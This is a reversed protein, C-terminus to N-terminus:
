SATRVSSDLVRDALRDQVSANLRLAWYCAVLFLGGDLCLVTAYAAAPSGLLRRSLDVVAGAGLGGGAFAIAQAAGWLGMYLGERGPGGAASLEMMAGVAAVAFTGNAMGLVVTAGSVSESRGTLAILALVAVMLASGITGVVMWRQAFQAGPRRRLLAAAVVGLMGLLVGGNQMGALRASAAPTFGFVLGVFPEVLLEQASFAFMSALLFWTFRRARADGWLQRCATGFSPPAVRMRVGVAPPEIIPREVSRVALWALLFAAGSVIVFVQLLRLSSFPQLFHGALGASLGFGAIMMIWVLAAALPRRQPAVRKSILTLNATGAAGVGVGIAIYALIALVIGAAPNSRMWIVALAAAVGGIALIATGGVIRPTCRQGVDVRHGHHLRLLQVLYHTAVLAAPLLAPLALEVIMIRNLTSTALVVIAGLATQVLALRLLDFWSLHKSHMSM